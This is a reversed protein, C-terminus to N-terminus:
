TQAENDDELELLRIAGAVLEVALDHDLGGEHAREEESMFEMSSTVM